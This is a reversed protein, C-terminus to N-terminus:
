ESAEVYAEVKMAVVGRPWHAQKLHLLQERMDAESVAQSVHKVTAGSESVVFLYYPHPTM